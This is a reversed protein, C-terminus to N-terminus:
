EACNLSVKLTTGRPGPPDFHVGRAVRSMCDAVDASIGGNSTVTVEAVAGRGDVRMTLVICGTQTPDGELGHQYCRNARPRVQLRIVDASNDVPKEMWPMTEAAGSATGAPNTANGTFETTPTPPRAPECSASVIAVAVSSALSGWSMVDLDFPRM